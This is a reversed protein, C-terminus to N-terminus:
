CAINNGEASSVATEDMNLIFKPKDFINPYDKQVQKLVRVYSTVHEPHKAHQKAQDLREFKRM